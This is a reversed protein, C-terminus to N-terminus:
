YRIANQNQAFPENRGMQATQEKTLANANRTGGAEGKLSFGTM